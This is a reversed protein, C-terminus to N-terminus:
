ASRTQMGLARHAASPTATCALLVRDPDRMHLVPYQMRCHVGSHQTHPRQLLPRSEAQRFAMCYISCQRTYGSPPKGHKTNSWKTPREVQHTRPSRYAPILTAFRVALLVPRHTNLLRATVVAHLVSYQTCGQTRRPYQM